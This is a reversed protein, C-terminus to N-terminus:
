LSFDRMVSGFKVRCSRSRIDTLTLGYQAIGPELVIPEYGSSHFIACWEGRRNRMFGKLAANEFFRVSFPNRIARDSVSPGTPKKDKVPSQWAAVGSSLHRPVALGPEGLLQVMHFISTLIVAILVIRFERKM